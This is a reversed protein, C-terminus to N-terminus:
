GEIEEDAKQYQRLLIVEFDQQLIDLDITESFIGIVHINIGGKDTRM